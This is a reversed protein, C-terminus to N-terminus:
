DLRNHRRLGTAHIGYISPNMGYHAMPVLVTAASASSPTM